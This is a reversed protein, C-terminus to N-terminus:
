STGVAYSGELEDNTLLRIDGDDFGLEFGAPDDGAHVHLSNAVALETVALHRCKLGQAQAQHSSAELQHAYCGLASNSRGCLGIHRATASSLHVKLMRRCAPSWGLRGVM